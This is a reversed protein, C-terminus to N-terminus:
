TGEGVVIRAAAKEHDAYHSAKQRNIRVFELRAEYDDVSLREIAAITAALDDSIIMGRTDFIDGIDPAGWYIPVAECLLCDILKETFYGPERVNEIIVSYRYPALGDAKHVFPAYGRGLVEVKTQNTRIWGVVQHRLKHGPYYDKGSAILSALETKEIKLDQWDPVWTSGFYFRESNPIAALLSANSCLVRHFRWWLVRLWAMNRGHVAQPEVVMVSVKARVGPRPMYLLRSSVYAILHDNRELDAVVKGKLRDPQGLPWHLRDLEFRALGPTPRTDYPLIAVAPTEGKSTLSETMKHVLSSKPDHNYSRGM